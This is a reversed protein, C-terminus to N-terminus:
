HDWTNVPLQCQASCLRGTIDYDLSSPQTLQMPENTAVEVLQNVEDSRSAVKEDLYFAVFEASGVAAGLHLRGAKHM